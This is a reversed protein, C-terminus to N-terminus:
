REFFYNFWRHWNPLDTNLPQNTLGAAGPLSQALNPIVIVNEGPKQLGLRLRAEREKFEPTGFYSIVRRLEDNKGDVAKIDAKLAAIEREIEVKRIVSRSIGLGIFVVVLIAVSFFIRSTVLSWFDLKTPM